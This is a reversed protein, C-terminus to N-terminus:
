RRKAPTKRDDGSTGRALLEATHEDPLGAQLLTHYGPRDRDLADWEAQTCIAKRQDAQKHITMLYIVWSEGPGQM